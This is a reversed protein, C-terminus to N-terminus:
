KAHSAEEEEKRLKAYEKPTIPVIKNRSNVLVWNTGCDCEKVSQGCDECIEILDKPKANCQRNKGRFKCNGEYECYNEPHCFDCESM